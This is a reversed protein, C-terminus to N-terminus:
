KTFKNAIKSLPWGKNLLMLKYYRLYCAWASNRCIYYGMRGDLFGLKLFFKKIFEFFTRLVIAVYNIRKGENYLKQAALSSYRHITQLHEAQDKATYHYCYGSLLPVNKQQHLLQEHVFNGEWKAENRNFLRVKTDNQWGSHHIWQGCYNALRHIRYFYSHNTEKLQQISQILEPSLKEDADISLIWDHKAQTNAFNKTASYGQWDHTIFNAHFEKCIQPTKDSSHSDVVVIDDAISEISQLCHGVNREENLTIIVVSLLSMSPEHM